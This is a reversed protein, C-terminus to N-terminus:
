EKKNAFGHKQTVHNCFFRKPLNVGDLKPTLLKSGLGM